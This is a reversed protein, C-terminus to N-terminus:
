GVELQIAVGGSAVEGDGDHREDVEDTHPPEALAVYAALEPAGRKRVWDRYRDRTGHADPDAYTRWPAHWSGPQELSCPFVGHEIGDVIVRLVEDFRTKPPKTSRLRQGASTAARTSVFWYAAVVPTDDNGFASRAALTYM